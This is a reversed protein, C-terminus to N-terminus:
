VREGSESKCDYLPVKEKPNKEKKPKKEKKDMMEASM